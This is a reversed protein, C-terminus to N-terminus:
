GVASTSRATSAGIVLRQDVGRDADRARSGRVGDRRRRRIGVLSRDQAAHWASADSFARGIQSGAPLSITNALYLSQPQVLTLRELLRLSVGLVSGVARGYVTLAGSLVPLSPGDTGEGASVLGITMAGAIPLRVHAQMFCSRDAPDLRIYAGEASKGLLAARNRWSLAGEVRVILPGGVERTYTVTDGQDPRVIIDRVCAGGTRRARLASFLDDGASSDIRAAPLRFSAEDPNYVTLRLTEARVSAAVLTLPRPPTIAVLLVLVILLLAFAWALLRLERPLVAPNLWKPFRLTTM